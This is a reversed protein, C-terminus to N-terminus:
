TRRIGRTQQRYVSGGQADSDAGKRARQAVRKTCVMRGLEWGGEPTEKELAVAVFMTCLLRSTTQAHKIETKVLTSRVRKLSMTHKIHRLTDRDRISRLILINLDLDVCIHPDHTDDDGHQFNRVLYPGRRGFAVETQGFELHKAASVVDHVGRWFRASGHLLRKPWRTNTFAMVSSATRPEMANGHTQINESCLKTKRGVMMTCSRKQQTNNRM